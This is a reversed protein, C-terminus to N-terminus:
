RVRAVIGNAAPGSSANLKTPDISWVSAVKMVDEENPSWQGPPRVGFRLRKEAESVAGVNSLMEGSEGLYAFCRIVQGHKALIWHHYEIVRNTAYGQAEGFRGSLDGVIKAVAQVSDREGTGMAWEGIICVWGGVPPSVFISGGKYAANIGTHWDAANKLRIPLASVVAGPDTSRVVMWGINYGFPEPGSPKDNFPSSFLTRINPIMSMQCYAAAPLITFWLAAVLSLVKM